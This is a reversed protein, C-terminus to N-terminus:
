AVIQKEIFIAIDALLTNIAHVQTSLKRSVIHHFGHKFNQTPRATLIIIYYFIIIYYYYYSKIICQRRSLELDYM